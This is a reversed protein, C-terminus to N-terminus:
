LVISPTWDHTASAKYGSQTASTFIYETFQEQHQHQHQHQHHINTSEMLNVRKLVQFDWSSSYISNILQSQPYEAVSREKQRRVQNERKSKLELSLLQRGFFLSRFPEEREQCTVRKKHIPFKLCSLKSKFGQIKWIINSFLIHSKVEGTAYLIM